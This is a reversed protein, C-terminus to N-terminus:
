RQQAPRSPRHGHRASRVGHAGRRVLGGGHGLGHEAVKGSDNLAELMWARLEAAAERRERAACDGPRFRVTAELGRSRFLNYLHPVFSADGVWAALDRPDKESRRAYSLAAGRVPIGARLAPELLAAHMPGVSEGLTTTGEPFVIVPAGAEFLRSIGRCVETVARPRDRELFLTEVSRALAGMVPWGALDSKSVFLAPHAAALVIVDLYGLHNSAILAPGQPPAGQVRLRIGLLGCLGRSWLSLVRAAGRARLRAPLAARALLWAGGVALTWAVFGAARALARAHGFANV